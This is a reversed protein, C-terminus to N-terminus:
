ARRAILRTRRCSHGPLAPSGESQQNSVEQNQGLSPGAKSGPGGAAPRGLSGTGALPQPICDHAEAQGQSKENRPDNLLDKNQGVERVGDSQGSSTSLAMPAGMGGPPSPPPYPPPSPSDTPATSSPSPPMTSSHLRYAPPPSYPAPPSPSEQPRPHRLALTLPPPRRSSKLPIPPPPPSGSPAIARLENEFARSSQKAPTDSLGPGSPLLTAPGAGFMELLQKQPNPGPARPAPRPNLFALGGYVLANAGSYDPGELVKSHPHAIVRGGAIGPVRPDIM